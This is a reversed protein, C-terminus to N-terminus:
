MVLGQSLKELRTEQGDRRECGGCLVHQKRPKGHEMVDRHRQVHENKETRRM